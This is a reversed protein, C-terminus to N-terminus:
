QHGPGAGHTATQEVMMAYQKGMKIETETSYWDGLGRGGVNRNGIADVDNKSGTKVGPAHAHIPNTAPQADTSPPLAPPTPNRQRTQQNDLRLDRGPATYVADAREVAGRGARTLCFTLLWAIM